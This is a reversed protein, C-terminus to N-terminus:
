SAPSASFQTIVMMRSPGIGSSRTKGAMSMPPAVHAQSQAICDHRRLGRRVFGFSRDVYTVTMTAM